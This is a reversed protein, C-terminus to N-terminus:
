EFDDEISGICEINDWGYFEGDWSSLYLAIKKNEANNKMSETASEQLQVEGCRLPELNYFLHEDPSEIVRAHPYKAVRLIGLPRKTIVAQGDWIIEGILGEAIIDGDKLPKGNRDKKDIYECM